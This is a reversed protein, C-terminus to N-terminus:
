LGEAQAASVSESTRGLERCAAISELFVIGALPKYDPGAAARLQEDRWTTCLEEIRRGIERAEEVTEDTPTELNTTMLYLAQETLGLLRESRERWEPGFWLDHEKRTRLARALSLNERSILGIRAIARFLLQLRRIARESNDQSAIQSLYGVIEREVRETIRAYKEVRAYVEHFEQTQAIATLSRAMDFMKFVRKAQNTVENRAQLLALEPSSLFGSDFAVLRRRSEDPTRRVLRTVLRMFSPIFGVCLFVNVLNFGTHFLALMLPLTTTTDSLGDRGFLGCIGASIWPLLPVAWLLGTVNFLTHFLAARRASTNARIAALNATLTTGLNEGLVMAAGAEFPIWGNQCLIITLVITASSSQLIATLVIGILLFLIASLYGLGAYATLSQFLGTRIAISGMVSQLVGLGFLMLAFGILIEGAARYRSRHLLILAFGAGVLPISVVSFDFTFGFLVLIWATATTGINAGMVMGIAQRLNVIGANVFGIIMVTMASSSQVTATVAATSAIQAAPTATMRGMARRLRSGSTRQLAESMLKMGYLFLGLSGIINLLRILIEM